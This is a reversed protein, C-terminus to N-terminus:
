ATVGTITSGLGERALSFDQTYQGLSIHHTVSKLYYYGDYSFGAGRLGVLGPSTLIDGYRLVDLTGDATVVSAVSQDTLMQARIQADLYSSGQYDLLSKRVFPQNASLAPASSLLPLRTSAFTVVPLVIEAEEDSVLGFIQTPALADYSFNISRVNTAPGADVTLTKQPLGLRNVPGWYAINQFPVAGPRVFFIYGHEAALAKLYARDTGSQQPIREIPLSVSSTLTPLVMPIIGFGAYKVLVVTAIEWDGLGPYELAIDYMDMLISIDEGTVTLLRAGKDDYTLQHHTIVGDMIVRPMTNATVTVILRNGPKLLPHSVVPYDMSVYPGRGVRFSVQFGSLESQTVEVSQLATMLEAPAPAPVVQGLLLQLQIQSISM